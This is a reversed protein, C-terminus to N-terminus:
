PQVTHMRDITEPMDSPCTVDIGNEECLFRGVRQAPECAIGACKDWRTSTEKFEV